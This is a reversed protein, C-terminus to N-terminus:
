GRAQTVSRPKSDAGESYGGGGYSAPAKIITPQTHKASKSDQQLLNELLSSIGIIGIIAAGMYLLFERRNMDRALLNQLATQHDFFM